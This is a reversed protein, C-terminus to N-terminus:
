AIVMNYERSIDLKLEGLKDYVEEYVVRAAGSSEMGEELFIELEEVLRKEPKIV